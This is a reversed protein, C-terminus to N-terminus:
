AHGAIRQQHRGQDVSVPPQGTSGQGTSQSEVADLDPLRALPVTLIVRSGQGPESEVQLEGAIEEAWERMGTLGMHLSNRRPLQSADFGCGDDEVQVVLELPLYRLSIKVQTAQAHKYVNQMAEQVIRLVAVQQLVSLRNLLLDDSVDLVARVGTRSEYDTVHNQLAGALSGGELTPLRLNSILQRFGQIGHSLSHTVSSLEEKLGDLDELKALYSCWDLRLSLVTLMQVPGDHLERALRQRERRQREAFELADRVQQRIEAFELPKSLYRHVQLQEAKGRTEQDGYATMWMIMTSPSVVRVAETLEVGDVGPMKLDTIVLDFPNENIKALAEQGNQATVIEYEDGPKKLGSSLVFLVAPEDDVLLIRKSEQM